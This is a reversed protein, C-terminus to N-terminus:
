FRYTVGVQLHFNYIDKGAVWYDPPPPADYVWQYNLTRIAEAKAMFTLNKYDWNAILAASLDIWHSRVDHIRANFFDNNHVYRQLQIGVTKLAKVWSINISEINSGPGIGAGLLQGQHTYGDRVVSSLYWSKDLRARSVPNMELQTLEMAFQIYENRDAKWPILKRVGLTYATAHSAEVILDKQDWYTDSRGYELYIEGKSKVWMWRMFFSSFQDRKNETELKVRKSAYPIFVPLLDGINIANLSSGMEKEYIQFSRTIGLFLGPVWKPQYSLVMGNLYRWDKPKPDYLPPGGNYNRTPDPPPYGSSKLKGAIIQGEFSGLPTRIPKVTNFTFHTFGPASNSMLLSNQMGPGWWLNETSLGFSIAGYNLRISSQGWFAKDYAKEGFRDPLDILNLYETYLQYWLQDGWVPDRRTSPFGEYSLNEAHVFEPRLQISLMGYQAYIGASILGQYGKAPIMAGDNLGAPRATNLQNIWTVPLLKIFGRGQDFKFINEVKSWRKEKLNKEPDFGNKTKVADPFFPRATFSISSDMQGLLQARRYADELVPTGVPLSQALLVESFVITLFLFFIFLSNRM